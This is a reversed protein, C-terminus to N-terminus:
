FRLTLLFICSSIKYNLEEKELIFPAFDNSFSSCWMKLKIHFVKKRPYCSGKSSHHKNFKFSCKDLEGPFSAGRKPEHLHWCAARHQRIVEGICWQVWHGRQGWRSILFFDTPYPKWWLGNFLFYSLKKEKKPFCVNLFGFLFSQFVSFNAEVRRDIVAGFDGLMFVSSTQFAEDM